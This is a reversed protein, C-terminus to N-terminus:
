LTAFQRGCLQWQHFISKMPQISGSTSISRTCLSHFALARIRQSKKKNRGWM